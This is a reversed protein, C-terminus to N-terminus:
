LSEGFLRADHTHREIASASQVSDSLPRATQELLKPPLWGVELDGFSHVDALVFDGLRHHDRLDVQREVCRHCRALIIPQEIIEGVVHIRRRVLDRELLRQRLRDLFRQRRQLFPLGFNQAQVEAEIAGVGHRELVDTSQELDRTLSHTLDLFLSQELQAM